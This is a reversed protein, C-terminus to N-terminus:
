RTVCYKIHQQTTVNHITALNFMTALGGRVKQVYKNIGVLIYLKHQISRHEVYKMMSSFFVNEVYLTCIGMLLM